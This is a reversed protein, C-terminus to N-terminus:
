GRRMRESLERALLMEKMIAVCENMELEKNVLSVDTTELTSM